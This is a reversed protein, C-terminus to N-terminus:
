NRPASPSGAGAAPARETQWGGGLAKYLQVVTLLQSLEARTLATEAPFIQQQAQLVEYYSARGATFRQTAVRFAERYAAVASAQQRRVEAFKQRSILADSVEQLANLATQQYQHKAQEWAAKAQRYEASIRGGQFIPGTLTGGLGWANWTGDTFTSLSPSVRGLLGTLDLQPFFDSKAVGVQANASRLLQEAQRVDPRRELLASPLGAPVEPPL